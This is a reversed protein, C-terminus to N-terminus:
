KHDVPKQLQNHTKTHLKNESKELDMINIQQLIFVVALAIGMFFKSWDVGRRDKGM